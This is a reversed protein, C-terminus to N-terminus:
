LHGSQGDATLLLTFTLFPSVTCLIPRKNAKTTVSRSPGKCPLWPVRGLQYPFRTPVLFLFSSERSIAGFKLPLPQLSLHSGRPTQTAPNPAAPPPAPNWGRHWHLHSRPSGVESSKNLAPMNWYNVEQTQKCEKKVKTYSIETQRTPTISTNLQLTDPLSPKWEM